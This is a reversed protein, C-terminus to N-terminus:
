NIKVTILKDESSFIIISYPYLVITLRHLLQDANSINVKNEIGFIEAKDIVMRQLRSPNERTHM